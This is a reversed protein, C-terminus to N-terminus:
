EYRLAEIPRLGAARWAPYIGFVLGVLAAFGTALLVTPADIVPSFDPLFQDVITSIVVGLGIGLLGGVLSLVMSEILFQILIDRRLAGVAKRIGIERTRETVSVLMINMIGIGGVLLSIGAIAGLFVTLGTTISNFTNLLDTQSIIQFDDDAAYVIDHQERLVATIQEVAADVAGGSVAQVTITNVAREGSRTRAPYLRTQATTLPIFVTSDGGTFGGKEELVGVVEYAVGNIRVDKGVPYQGTFLEEAASWGLVAVRARRDLDNGTLTDGFAVSYSNVAFHTPMVGSVSTRYSNGEYIVEQSGQVAAAVQAVAPANLPDRLAEVDSLSLAPAGDTVETDTSVGILNTGIAQIEGTIFRNVGNGVSMLAIVAAVGIIVGLMTLVARLKNARLSDLATLFSEFLNM